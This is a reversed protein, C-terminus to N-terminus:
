RGHVVGPESIAERLLGATAVDACQRGADADRVHEDHGEHDHQRDGDLGAIGQFAPRSPEDPDEELAEDQHDAAKDRRVDALDRRARRQEACQRADGDGEDRHPRREFHVHRRLDAQDTKSDDHKAPEAAHSVEAVQRGAQDGDGDAHHDCPARVQKTEADAAEAHFADAVGEGIEAERHWQRSEVGDEGPEFEEADDQHRSYREADVIEDLCHIIHLGGLGGAVVIRGCPHQGGIAHHRQDSAQHAVREDVGDIDAM